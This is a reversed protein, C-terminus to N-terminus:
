RVYTQSRERLDRARVIDPSHRSTPTLAGARTGFSEVTGYDIVARSPLEDLRRGGNVEVPTKRDKITAEVNGLYNALEYQKDERV